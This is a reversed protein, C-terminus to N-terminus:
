ALGTKDFTAVEEFESSTEMEYMYILRHHSKMYERMRGADFNSNTYRCANILHERQEEDLQATVAFEALWRFHRRQLNVM